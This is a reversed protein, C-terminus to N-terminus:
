RAKVAAILASPQDVGLYIREVSGLPERLTLVLNPNGSFNYRKHLKSRRVQQDHAAISAISQLPLKLPAFLGYRIILHDDTLSIPRRSMARYEAVFFALSLLTLLTVVTAALPSWLFHLLMHMIPLEFAILLTFGLQNSQAGDKQHYSFHKVGTFQQATIRQAFLLYTWVRTEFSLINAVMGTGLLKEIPASIAVDPDDRRALASRIAWYVTGIAALEFLLVLALLAYRGNELYHWVLKSQEPIVYSGLLIALAVLMVAKLAAEKKDPVCVFCLLPLVVLADVLFLWEFNAAGYDNLAHEGGYYLWWVITIGLLFLLPIHRIVSVKM